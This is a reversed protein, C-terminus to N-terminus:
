AAARGWNVTAEVIDGGEIPVGYEISIILANDNFLTQGASSKLLLTGEDGEDFGLVTGPGAPADPVYVTFSGSIDSHGTLRDIKQSTSSSAFSKEEKTRTITIDRVDTVPTAAFQASGFIATFPM